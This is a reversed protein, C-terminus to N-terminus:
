APETPHMAYMQLTGTGSHFTAGLAYANGDYIPDDQKYSQMKQMGRTHRIYYPQWSQSM